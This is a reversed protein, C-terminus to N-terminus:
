RLIDRIIKLHHNTHIKLFKKAMRLDLMGFYLHKFNSQAPLDEMETLSRQAQALQDYLDAKSIEGQAVVYKPAKGRGRPVSNTLYIYSRILNFRWKYKAPDSKKLAGSVRIIVKLSHDLHWDIGKESVATNLKESYNILGTLEAIEKDLLM